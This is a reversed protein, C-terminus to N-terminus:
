RAKLAARRFQNTSLDIRDNIFKEEYFYLYFIFKPIQQKYFQM